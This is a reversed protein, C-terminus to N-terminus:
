VLNLGFRNLPSPEERCAEFGIGEELKLKSPRKYKIGWSHPYKFQNLKLSFSSKNLLLYQQIYKGYKAEIENSLKVPKLAMRFPPRQLQDTSDLQSASPKFSTNWYIVKVSKSDTQSPTIFPILLGTKSNSSSKSTSQLQSQFEECSYYDLGQFCSTSNSICKDTLQDQKSKYIPRLKKLRHFLKEKLQIEEQISCKLRPLMELFLTQELKALGRAQARYFRQMAYEVQTGVMRRIQQESYCSPQSVTSSSQSYAMPTSPSSWNNRNM